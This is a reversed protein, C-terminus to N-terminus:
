RAADLDRVDQFGLQRLRRPAGARVPELLFAEHDGGDFRDRIKGFVWADVDALKPTRKDPGPRVGAFKDGHDPAAPDGTVEGFHAALDHQRHDLFHVMLHSAKRAVAHTHNARSLFVCLRPPEMSCQTQFGVLCGAILGRSAATVVVMPYDLAGVVREFASPRMAPDDVM